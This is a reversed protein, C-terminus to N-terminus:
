VRQVSGSGVGPRGHEMANTQAASGAWRKQRIENRSLVKAAGLVTCEVRVMIQQLKLSNRTVGAHLLSPVSM